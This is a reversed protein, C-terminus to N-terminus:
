YEPYHAEVPNSGATCSTIKITMELFILIADCLVCFDKISIQQLIDYHWSSKNNDTKYCFFWCLM